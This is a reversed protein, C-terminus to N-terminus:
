VSFLSVINQSMIQGSSSSSPVASSKTATFTSTLPTYPRTEYITFQTSVDRTLSNRNLETTSLNSASVASAAFSTSKVPTNFLLPFANMWITMDSMTGKATANQAGTIYNQWYSQVNPEFTSSGPANYFSLQSTGYGEGTFMLQASAMGMLCVLAALAVVITRM